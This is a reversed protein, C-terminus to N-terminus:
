ERWPLGRKKFYDISEDIKDLNENTLRAFFIGNYNHPDGFIMRKFYEGEQAEAYPTSGWVRFLEFWSSDIAEILRPDSCDMILRMNTEENVSDWFYSNEM